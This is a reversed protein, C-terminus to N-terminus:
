NREPSQSAAEAGEQATVDVGAENGEKRVKADMLKVTLLWLEDMTHLRDKIAAPSMDTM